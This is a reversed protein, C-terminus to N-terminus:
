TSVRPRRLRPLVLLAGGAGAVTAVAISLANIADRLLRPANMQTYVRVNPWM